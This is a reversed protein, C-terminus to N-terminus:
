LVRDRQRILKFLTELDVNMQRAETLLMDIRDRLVDRDSTQGSVPVSNTIAIIAFAVVLLLFHNTTKMILSNVRSPLVAFRSHPEVARQLNM